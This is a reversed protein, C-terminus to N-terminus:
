GAGSPGLWRLIDLPSRNVPLIVLMVSPLTMIEVVVKPSIGMGVLRMLLTARLLLGWGEVFSGFGGLAM